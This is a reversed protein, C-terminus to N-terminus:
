AFLTKQTFYSGIFGKMYIEEPQSLVIITYSM